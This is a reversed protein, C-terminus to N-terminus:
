RLALMSSLAAIFAEPHTVLAFHGAAELVLMRKRPAVVTAFYSSAPATPTFWDDQGQIVFYPLEFTLASTSLREQMQTPLLAGGSFSMGAGLAARDEDTMEISDSALARMRSFWAKDSDALFNRLQRTAAFYQAANMPDLQGISDLQALM